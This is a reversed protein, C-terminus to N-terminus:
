GNGSGRASSSGRDLLLGLKGDDQLRTAVLLDVDNLFDAGDRAKTELFGLVEDLGAALGHLFAHGLVFSGLQLLLELVLARGDFHLLRPPPRRASELAQQRGGGTKFPLCRSTEGSPRKLTMC